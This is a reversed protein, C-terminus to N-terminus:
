ITFRIMKIKLLWGSRLICASQICCESAALSGERLRGRAPMRELGVVKLRTQNGGTFVLKWQPTAFEERISKTTTNESCV